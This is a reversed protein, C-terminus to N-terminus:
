IPRLGRGLSSESRCVCGREAAELGHCSLSLEVPNHWFHRWRPAGRPRPAAALAPANLGAAAVAFRLADEVGRGEVLALAFAGHFVDGAGLTDVTEIAFVPTKRITEATVGCYLIPGM